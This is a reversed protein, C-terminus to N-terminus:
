RSRKDPLNRTDREIQRRSKRFERMMIQVKEQYRLRRSRRLTSDWVVDYSLQLWFHRRWEAPKSAELLRRLEAAVEDEACFMAEMDGRAIADEGERILNALLQYVPPTRERYRRWHEAGQWILDALDVDICAPTRDIVRRAYAFRRAASFFREHAGARRTPFHMM